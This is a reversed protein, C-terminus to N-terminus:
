RLSENINRKCYHNIPIGYVSYIGSGINYIDNAVVDREFTLAHVILRTTRKM